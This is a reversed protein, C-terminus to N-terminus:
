GRQNMVQVLDMYDEIGGDYAVGLKRALLQVIPNDIGARSAAPLRGEAVFMQTSRVVVLCIRVGALIEYYELDVVPRGLAQEYIAIQATRDPLGALRPVGLSLMEDIFFWWGLDIEGPGLASAEFDHVAAVRGDDGFLINGPNSDGWLVEVRQTAPKKSMLYAMAADIVRHPRGGTAKSRWSELWGIYQDLGAAGYVPKDLFAFGQRWDLRNIRGITAIAETWMAYRREPPLDHLLGATQYSPHQPLSSGVIREMVLFQGGLVSRDRELGLVVPVPIGHAALGCMMESQRGIDTDPFIERGTQELRVVWDRTIRAGDANTALKLLLTHASFGSTPRSIETLTLSADLHARLWDELAPAIDDHAPRAATL